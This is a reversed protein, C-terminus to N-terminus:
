IASNRGDIGFSRAYRLIYLDANLSLGDIPLSTDIPTNTDILNYYGFVMNLDTPLNQWDRANDAQAPIATISAAISIGLLTPGTCWSRRLM